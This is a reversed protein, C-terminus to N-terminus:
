PLKQVGWYWFILSVLYMSIVNSDMIVDVTIQGEVLVSLFLYVGFCLVFYFNESRKKLYEAILFVPLVILVFNIASGLLLSQPLINYFFGGLFETDTAVAPDIFIAMAGFVLVWLILASLFISLLAGKLIIAMYATNIKVNM